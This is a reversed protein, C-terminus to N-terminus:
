IGAKNAENSGSGLGKNEGMSFTAGQTNTQSRGGEKRDAIAGREWVRNEKRGYKHQQPPTSSYQGGSSGQLQQRPAPCSVSYCPM